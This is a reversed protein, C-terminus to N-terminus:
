SVEVLSLAQKLTVGNTKVYIQVDSGVPPLAGVSFTTPEATDGGRASFAGWFIWPSQATLRYEVRFFFFDSTNTFGTHDMSITLSNVAKMTFPGITRDVSTTNSNDIRTTINPM